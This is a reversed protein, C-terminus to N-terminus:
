AAIFWEEGASTPPESPAPPAPASEGMLAALEEEVQRDKRLEAAEAELDTGQLQERMDNRAKQGKVKQELQDLTNNPADSNLGDMANNVKERAREVENEAIVANGRARDAEVRSQVEEAKDAYGAVQAKLTDLTGKLLGAANEKEAKRELAKRAREMLSAREPSDPPCQKAKDAFDAAAAKWEAADAMHQDYQTQIEALKGAAEAVSGSYIDSGKAKAEIDDEVRERIQQDEIDRVKGTIAREIAQFVRGIAGM